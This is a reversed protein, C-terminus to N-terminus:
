VSSSESNTKGSKKKEIKTVFLATGFTALVILTRFTIKKISEQTSSMGRFVDNYLVTLYIVAISSLCGWNSSESAKEFRYLEVVAIILNLVFLITLQGSIIPGVASLEIGFPISGMSIMFSSCLTMLIGWVMSLLSVVKIYRSLKDTNDLTESQTITGSLILTISAIMLIVYIFISENTFYHILAFVHGLFSDNSFILSTDGLASLGAAICCLIAVVFRIIRFVKRKKEKQQLKTVRVVETIVSEDDKEVDGTIIDQIRIDLTVALTELLAVDPFSDGNEWRSIAKNSVGLLDGLDSQTYNKRIRAERILAGTKQKDM